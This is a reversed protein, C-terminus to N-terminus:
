VDLHGYYSLCAMLNEFSTFPTNYSIRNSLEKCFNDTVYKFIAYTLQVEEEKSYYLRIRRRVIKSVLNMYKDVPSKDVKNSRKALYHNSFINRHVELYVIYHTLEMFAEGIVDNINDTLTDITIPKGTTLDVIEIYNVVYNYHFYSPNDNVDEISINCPNYKCMYYLVNITSYEKDFSHLKMRTCVTYKITQDHDSRRNVNLYCFTSDTFDVIDQNDGIDIMIKPRMTINYRREISHIKSQLKKPMKKYIWHNIYSVIDNYVHRNENAFLMWSRAIIKCKRFLWAYSDTIQDLNDHEYINYDIHYRDLASITYPNNHIKHYLSKVTSFRNILYSADMVIDNTGDKIISRMSLSTPALMEVIIDNAGIVETFGAVKTTVNHTIPNRYIYYLCYNDNKDSGVSTVNYIRNKSADDSHEVVFSFFKPLYTINHHTNFFPVDVMSNTIICGIYERIGIQSLSSPISYAPISQKLYQICKNYEKSLCRTERKMSFISNFQTKEIRRQFKTVVKDVDVCHDKFYELSRRKTNLLDFFYIYNFKYLLFSIAFPNNDINDPYLYHLHVNSVTSDVKQLNSIITDLMQEELEKIYMIMFMYYDIFMKVFDNHHAYAFTEIEKNSCRQIACYVLSCLIKAHKDTTLHYHKILPLIQKDIISTCGYKTLMDIASNYRGEYNFLIDDGDINGDDVTISLLSPIDCGNCYLMNSSPHSLLKKYRYQLKKSMKFAKPLLTFDMCMLGNLLDGDNKDYDSNNLYLGKPFYEIIADRIIQEVTSAMSVKEGKM